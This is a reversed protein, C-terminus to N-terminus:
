VASSILGFSAILSSSSKRFCSRSCVYHVNYMIPGRSRSRGPKVGFESRRRSIINSITEDNAKATRQPALARGDSLDEIGSTMCTGFWLSCPNFYVSPTASISNCWALVVWSCNNACFGGGIKRRTLSAKQGCCPVRDRTRFSCLACGCFAAEQDFLPLSADRNVYTPSPCPESFM